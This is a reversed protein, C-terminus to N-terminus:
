ISKTLAALAKGLTTGSVDIEPTIAGGTFIFQTEDVGPPWGTAPVRALLAVPDVPADSPAAALFCNLHAGRRIRERDAAAATARAESDKAADTAQQAALAAAREETQQRERERLISELHDVRNQLEATTPM